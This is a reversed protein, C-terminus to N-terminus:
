QRLSRLSFTGAPLDVNFAHEEYVIETFEDPDDAPIVRMRRPLTRGGLPGFDEYRITRALRDREDFYEAQD